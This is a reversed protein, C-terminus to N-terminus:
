SYQNTGVVVLAPYNPLQSFVLGKRNESIQTDLGPHNIQKERPCYGENLTEQMSRGNKAHNEVDLKQSENESGRAGRVCTHQGFSGSSWIRFIFPIFHCTLPKLTSLCACTIGVNLEICSWIAMEAIDWSIDNSISVIFLAYLRWISVIAAFGGLSLILCISVKQKRPLSSARLIFIPLVLLLLDNTINLGSNLFWLIPKNICKGTDKDGWFRSIPWCHFVGTFFAEIGYVITFLMVLYCALRVKKNTAVRLYQLLISFKIFLLSVNYIIISLYLTKYFNVGEEHTLYRYHRGMGNEVQLAFFVSTAISFLLAVVAIWDDIAHYHILKIRTFLRLIVAVLAISPFIIIIAIVKPGKNAHYDDNDNM